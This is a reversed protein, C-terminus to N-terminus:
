TNPEGETGEVRRGTEKSEKKDKFSCELTHVKIQKDNLANIISSKLKAVETLFRNDSSNIQINLENSQQTIKIETVNGDVSKLTLFTNTSGTKDIHVYMKEILASLDKANTQEVNAKTDAGKIEIQQATQIVNSQQSQSSLDQKDKREDENEKVNSLASQLTSSHSIKDKDQDGSEEKFALNSLDEYDDQDKKLSPNKSSPQGEQPQRDLLQKTNAILDFISQNRTEKKIKPLNSDEQKTASDSPDPIQANQSSIKNASKSASTTAEEFDRKKEEKQKSLPNSAISQDSNKSNTKETLLEHPNLRKKDQPLDDRSQQRPKGSLKKNFEKDPDLKKEPTTKRITDENRPDPNDLSPSSINM